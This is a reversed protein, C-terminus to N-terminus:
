IMLNYVGIWPLCGLFSDFRDLFGGHGPLLTGSDKVKAVRKIASQQLDGLTGFIVVLLANIMWDRWGFVDIWQSLALGVLVTVIGAGITGEWTKGPSLKPALKNRGWRTGILYAFVDSSWLLVFIGLLFLPTLAILQIAFLGPVTILVFGIAACKLRKYFVVPSQTISFLLYLGLILPISVVAIWDWFIGMGGFSGPAIPYFFNLIVPLGIMIAFGWSPLGATPSVLMTYLERASFVCIILVLLSATTMGGLILGIVVGGMVLGTVVRTKFAPDPM